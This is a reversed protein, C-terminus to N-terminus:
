KAPMPPGEDSNWIGATIKWSGDAQRRYVNVGKFGETFPNVGPAKFALSLEGAYHDVALDGSVDVVASTIRITMKVQSFSTELWERIAASGTVAPGNNPMVVADATYVASAADVAGASLASMERDRLANIAVKDASPDHKPEEPTKACAVMGSCLVVGLVARLGATM